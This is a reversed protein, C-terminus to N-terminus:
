QTEIASTCRQVTAAGFPTHWVWAVVREMAAERGRTAAFMDRVLQQAESLDDNAIYDLSAAPSQHGMTASVFALNAVAVGLQHYFIDEPGPDSM